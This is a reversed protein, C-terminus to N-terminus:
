FKFCYIGHRTSFFLQCKVVLRPALRQGSWQSSLPASHRIKSGSCEAQRPLRLSRHLGTIGVDVQPTRNEVLSRTPPSSTDGCSFRSSFKSFFTHPKKSRRHRIFGLRLYSFWLDKRKLLTSRSFLVSGPSATLFTLYMSYDAFDSSLM